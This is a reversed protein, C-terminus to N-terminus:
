CLHLFGVDEGNQMVTALLAKILSLKVVCAMSQVASAGLLTARKTSLHALTTHLGAELQVSQSRIKWFLRDHAAAL